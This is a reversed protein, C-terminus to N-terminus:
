RSSCGWGTLPPHATLDTQGVAPKDTRWATLDASPSQWETFPQLSPHHPDRTDPVESGGLGVQPGAPGAQNLKM